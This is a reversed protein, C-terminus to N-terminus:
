TVFRLSDHEVGQYDTMATRNHRSVRNDASKLRANKIEFAQETVTLANSVRQRKAHHGLGQEKSFLM